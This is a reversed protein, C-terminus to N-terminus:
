ENRSVSSAVRRRFDDTPPLQLEKVVIRMLQDSDIYRSEDADDLDEDDEDNEVGVTEESPALARYLYQLAIDYAMETRAEEPTGSRAFWGVLEKLRPKFLFVWLIDTDSQTTARPSKMSLFGTTKEIDDELARLAPVLKCLDEFKRPRGPM